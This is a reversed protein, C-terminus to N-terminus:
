TIPALGKKESVMEMYREFVSYTKKGSQWQIQREKSLNAAQSRRNPAARRRKNTALLHARSEDITSCMVSDVVTFIVIILIIATLFQM